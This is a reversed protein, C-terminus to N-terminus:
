SRRADELASLRRCVQDAHRKCFQGVQVNLVNIVAYTARKPCDPCTPPPLAPIIYAM